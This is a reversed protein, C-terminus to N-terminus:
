TGRRLSLALLMISAAIVWSGAIRKGIIFVPFRDLKQCLLLVWSFGSFYVLMMGLVFLKSHSTADDAFPLFASAGSLAAVVIIALRPLVYRLVVLAGLAILVVYSIRSSEVSVTHAAFSAGFLAAAFGLYARGPAKPCQDSLLLSTLLLQMIAVYDLFPHVIGSQLDSFGKFDGHAFAASSQTTVALTLLM